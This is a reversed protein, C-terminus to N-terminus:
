MVLATYINICYFTVVIFIFSPQKCLTGTIMNYLLVYRLFYLIYNDSLFGICVIWFITFYLSFYASVYHCSNSLLEACHVHRLVKPIDEQAINCCDQRSSTIFASTITKCYFSASVSLHMTRQLHSSM